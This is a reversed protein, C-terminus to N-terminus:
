REEAPPDFTITSDAATRRFDSNTVNLTINRKYGFIVKLNFETGYTAPFWLNEDVKKYTINFGLQKIDTGLMLKVALPIKMALTTTVRLPQFERAEVWVDGSWPRDYDKSKPEFLIHYADVGSIPKLGDYRFRYHAQESRTLPFQEKSIGDRSKRDNVLDETLDEILDGDIDSDKYQFKPKEYSLIRGGREYRGEFHDLKKETGSASPTVTYRRKEERSLKGNTRLLRVFTDQRYVIRRRAEVGREQNEALRSLIEDLPPQALCPLVLCLCLCFRPM